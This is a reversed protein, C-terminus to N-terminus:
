RRKSVNIWARMLHERGDADKVIINNQYRGTGDPKLIGDPIFSTLPQYHIDSINGGLMFDNTTYTDILGNLRVMRDGPMFQFGNSAAAINCQYLIAAKTIFDDATDLTASAYTAELELDFLRPVYNITYM